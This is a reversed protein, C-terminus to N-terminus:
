FLPQSQKTETKIEPPFSDTFANKIQLSFLLIRKPRKESRNQDAGTRKRNLFLWLFVGRLTNKKHHGQGSLINGNAQPLRAGKM